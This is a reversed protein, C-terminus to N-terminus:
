KVRVFVAVRTSGYALKWKGELALLALHKTIPEGAQVFAIDYDSQEIDKQNDVLAIYDQFVNYGDSGQWLTMRGDILPKIQPYNWILWGGLNYDTFLHPDDNYHHNIIFAAAKPSCSRYGCYTNWTLSTYKNLPSKIAFVAITVICAAGLSFTAVYKKQELRLRAVLVAIFPMALYYFPWM